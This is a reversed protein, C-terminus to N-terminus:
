RLNHKDKWFWKFLVFMGGVFPHGLIQLWNFIFLNASFPKIRLTFKLILNAIFGPFKITIVLIKLSWHLYCSVAQNNCVPNSYLCRHSPSNRDLNIHRHTLPLQTSLSFKHWRTLFWKNSGWQQLELKKCGRLDTKLPNM